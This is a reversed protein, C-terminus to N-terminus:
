SRPEELYRFLISGGQKAIGRFHKFDDRAVLIKRFDLFQEKEVHYENLEGTKLKELIDHILQEDM